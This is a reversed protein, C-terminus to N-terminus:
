DHNTYKMGKQKRGHKLTRQSDGYNQNVTPFVWDDTPSQVESDM